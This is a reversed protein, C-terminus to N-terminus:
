GFLAEFTNPGAIGDASLGNASQFSRVATATGSGYIGDVDLNYGNCFLGAQLIYCINDSAGSYLTPCKSKMTSSWVGNISLGAGYQNNFETQLGKILAAKTNPGYIGDVAIGTNYRQNMTQQISAVSSGGVSGGGSFFSTVTVLNGNDRGRRRPSRITRSSSKEKLVITM